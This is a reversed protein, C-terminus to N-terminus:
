VEKKLLETGEADAEAIMAEPDEGGILARQELKARIASFWEQWNPHSHTGRVWTERWQGIQEAETALEPFIDMGSALGTIHPDSWMDRRAPLIPQFEAHFAAMTDSHWFLALNAADEAHGRRESAQNVVINNVELHFGRRGSYVSQPTWFVHMEGREGLNEKWVGGQNFAFGSIAALGAWFLLGTAGGAAPSAMAAQTQETTPSINDRWALGWWDSFSKVADGGEVTSISLNSTESEPDYWKAGESALRETWGQNWPGTQRELGWIGTDENRLQKGLEALQNFDYDKDPLTAGAGETLMTNAVMGGVYVGLPLGRIVGAADVLYDDNWWFDEKAMGLRQFHPGLDLMYKDANWWTEAMVDPGSGAVLLNTVLGAYGVATSGEGTLFLPNVTVHPHQKPFEEALFEYTKRRIGAAWDTSIELTVAQVQPPAEVMVEKTVIKEVEVMQTVIKEVPVEKIVEVPVEKTIVQTEGCAALVAVASGGM